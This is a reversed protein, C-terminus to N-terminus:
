TRVSLFKPIRQTKGVYGQLGEKQQNIVTLDNRLAECRLAATATCDLNTSNILRLKSFLDDSIRAVRRAVTSRQELPVSQWHCKIRGDIDDIEEILEERCKIFQNVAGIEETEVAKKLLETVSQFEDYARGKEVLMGFLEEAPSTTKM